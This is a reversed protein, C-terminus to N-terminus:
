CNMRKEPRLSMTPLITDPIAMLVIIFNALTAEIQFIKERRPKKKIFWIVDLVLFCVFTFALFVYHVEREYCPAAYYFTRDGTLTRAYINTGKHSFFIYDAIAVTSFIGACIYNLPSVMEVMHILLFAETTLFAMIGFLGFNRMVHAAEINECFGMIGYFSCWVCTFIGLFLLFWRIAGALKERLFYSLGMILGLMGLVVMSTNIFYGM